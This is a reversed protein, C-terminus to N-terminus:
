SDHSQGRNCICKQNPRWCVMALNGSNGKKCILVQGQVGIICIIMAVSINNVQRVGEECQIKFIIYEYQIRLTFLAGSLDAINPICHYCTPRIQGLQVRAQAFRTKPSGDCDLIWSRLRADLANLTVASGIIIEDSSFTIENLESVGVPSILNPYILGRFKVELCVETNGTIIKSNANQAKLSARILFNYLNKYKWKKAIYIIYM